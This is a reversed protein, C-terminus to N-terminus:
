VGGARDNAAMDAVQGPAAVPAQSARPALFAPMMLTVITATLLGCLVVLAFPQLVEMGASGGMFLMPAVLLAVGLASGVVRALHDTIAAQGIVLPGVSDENEAQAERM